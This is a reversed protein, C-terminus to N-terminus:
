IIHPQFISHLTLTKIGCVLSFLAFFASFVIFILFFCPFTAFLQSKAKGFSRSQNGKHCNESLPMCHFLQQLIHPFVLYQGEGVKGGGIAPIHLNDVGSQVVAIRTGVEKIGFQANSLRHPHAIHLYVFM